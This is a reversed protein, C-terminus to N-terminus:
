FKDDSVERTQLNGDSVTFLTVTVNSFRTGEDTITEQLPFLRDAEYTKTSGIFRYRVVYNGPPLGHATFKEGVKVYMSRSAPKIGNYYIRAIADSGGRQNDVTFNSLGASAEQYAGKM